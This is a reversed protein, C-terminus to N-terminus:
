SRPGVRIHNHKHTLAYKVNQGKRPKRDDKRTDKSFFHECSTSVLSEVKGRRKQERYLGDHRKDGAGGKITDKLLENTKRIVILRQM